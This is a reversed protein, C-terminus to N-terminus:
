QAPCDNPEISSGEPVPDTVVTSAPTSPISFLVWLREAQVPKERVEADFGLDRITEAHRQASTERKFYGLSIANRLEGSRFLWTDKVGAASLEDLKRIGEVRSELPPILVYYGDVVAIERREEGVVRAPAAANARVIQAEEATLPGIRVCREASARSEAPVAPEVVPEREAPADPVKSAAEPGAEAASVEHPKAASPIAESPIAPEELPAPEIVANNEPVERVSREIVADPSREVVDAAADVSSTASEPSPGVAVDAEPGLPAVVGSDTLSPDGGTVTPEAAPEGLDRAGPKVSPPPPADADPALEAASDATLPFDTMVTPEAEHLLRLRGIDPPPLEHAPRPSEGYAVWLYLVLNALLLFLVFWRM